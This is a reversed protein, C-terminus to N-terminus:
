DIKCLKEIQKHLLTTRAIIFNEFEDKKLMEIMNQSIFQSAMISLFEEYKNADKYQKEFDAIYISPLKNSIRKNNTEKTILSINAVNNIIDNYRHDKYKEAMEKGLTSNKPFIHHEELRHASAGSKVAVLGNYFDQAKESKLLLLLARYVQQSRNSYHADILQLNSISINQLYYFSRTNDRVLITLAEDLNTYKSITKYDRAIRENQAGPYRNKILTNWFWKKLFEQKEMDIDPYHSIAAALFKMIPQYVNLEEKSINFHQNMFGILLHFKDHLFKTNTMLHDTKIKLIETAKFKKDLIIMSLQLMFSEDVLMEVKDLDILNLNEFYDAKLSQKYNVVKYYSRLDFYGEPFRRYTKAVMIDFISLKTNKTNIREFVELVQELTGKQEIEYVKRELIHKELKKLEKNYDNKFRLMKIEEEPISTDFWNEIQSDDFNYTHKIKVFRTGFKTFIAQDSLEKLMFPEEPNSENAIKEDDLVWRMEPDDGQYHTDYYINVKEKKTTNNFRYIAKDTFALTLATTRQQGDLLYVVSEDRDQPIKIDKITAGVRRRALEDGGTWLLISSITYDRYISDVLLRVQNKDWVFPRQFEPLWISEEESHKILDYVKLEKNSLNM